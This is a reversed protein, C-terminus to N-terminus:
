QTTVRGTIPAITIARTEGDLELTVTASQTRVTVPDTCVPNGRVDFALAKTKNCAGAFVLDRTNVTVGRPLAWEARTDYLYKAVPHYVDFLKAPPNPVMDLRFVRVDDSSINVRVGRPIGTRISEHRAFRFADAVEAAALDLRATDRSSFEPLATVAIVSIIVIVILLEALTFGATRLFVPVNRIIACRYDPIDGNKQFDPTNGPSYCAHGWKM